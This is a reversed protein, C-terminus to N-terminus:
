LVDIYKYTIKFTFYKYLIDRITRHAREIVTCKIDPNKCVHFQIGESNLLNQFSANLFEREKDTQVWVPHRKVPKLYKADNLVTEFAASVATGTKSKLPVIRLFKSFVHIITLLFRYGENHKALFQVDV